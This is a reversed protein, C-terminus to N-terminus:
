VENFIGDCAMETIAEIRKRYFKRDFAMPKGAKASIYQAIPKVIFAAACMGMLNMMFHVPEIPKISGAALERNYISFITTPAINIASVADGIVRFIVPSEVTVERIIMKPIMPQAAFTTIYVSVVATILTRLDTEEQHKNMEGQIDSWLTV